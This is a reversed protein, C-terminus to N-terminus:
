IEGTCLKLEVGCLADCITQGQPFRLLVTLGRPSKCNGFPFANTRPPNKLEWVSVPQDRPPNEIKDM